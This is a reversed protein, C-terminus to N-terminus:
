VMAQCCMVLVVSLVAVICSPVVGVGSKVAGWLCLVMCCQVIGVSLLVEGCMAGVISCLM